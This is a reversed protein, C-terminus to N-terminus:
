DAGAKEVPVPKGADALAPVARASASKRKVTLYLTGSLFALQFLHPYYTATIFQGAVLYGVLAVDLGNSINEYVRGSNGPLLRAYRRITRNSRWIAYFISLYAILGFIGTEAAIQVLINHPSWYINPSGEARFQGGYANSFNSIGMGFVPNAIVMRLGAKWLLIRINASEEETGEAISSIREKYLDGSVIYLPGALVAICVIGIILKKEKYLIYLLCALLGILAGRSGCVPVSYMFVGCSVLFLIKLFRTRSIKFLYWAVALYMVAALGLESANGLFASSYGGVGYVPGAIERFSGVGGLRFGGPFILGYGGVGTARILGVTYYTYIQVLCVFLMCYISYRLYREIRDTSNLLLIALLYFPILKFFELTENISQTMWFSMVNSLVVAVVFFFFTKDVTTLTLNLRGKIKRHIAVSVLSIALISINPRIAGLQFILDQPRLLSVILYSYLGFIPYRLILVIVVIVGITGFIYQPEVIFLLGGAIVSAIIAAAMIPRTQSSPAWAKRRGFESAGSSHRDSRTTDRM